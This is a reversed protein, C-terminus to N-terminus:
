IVEGEEDPNRRKAKKVIKYGLLAVVLAVGGYLVYPFYKKIIEDRYKKYARSYYAPNDGLEFYSM